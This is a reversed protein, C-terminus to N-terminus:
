ADFRELLEGRQHSGLGRIRRNADIGLEEMTRIAGQSGVGPLNQLLIKVRTRGLAEDQDAMDFVRGLAIRGRKLDRQMEARASRAAASADQGERGGFPTGGNSQRGNSQRGNSQRGNSTAKAASADSGNRDSRLRAAIRATTVVAAGVGAAVMAPKALKEAMSPESPGIPMGLIRKRKKAM